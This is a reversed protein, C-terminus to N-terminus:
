CCLTMVPLQDSLDDILCWKIVKSVKSSFNFDTTLELLHHKHFAVKVVMRWGWQTTHTHTDYRHKRHRQIRQRARGRWAQSGPTRLSKWSCTMMWQCMWSSRGPRLGGHVLTWLSCMCCFCPQWVEVVMSVCNEKQILWVFWCTWNLSPCFYKSLCMELTTYSCNLM